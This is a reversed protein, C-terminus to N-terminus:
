EGKWVYWRSSGAGEDEVLGEQELFTLAFAVENYKYAREEKAVVGFIKEVLEKRTYAEDQHESLVKKVKTYTSENKKRIEFDKRKLPMKGWEEIEFGLSRLRPNTEQEGGNFDEWSLERGNAYVNALSIAYKPPYRRGEFILSYKKSKRMDPVGNRDIAHLARIVDEYTINSPIVKNDEV